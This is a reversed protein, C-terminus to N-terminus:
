FKSNEVLAKLKLGLENLDRASQKVQKMSSANESGAQNITKIAVGIQDMGILQQKSSAVIQTAVNSAERTSETLVQIAEGAKVSQKVGAEVAKNGQEAAMVAASTTKQVDFLITRVQATAKKSQEALSRIEQAVVAFGKGQEGAKAAEIAANVALLNSQNAVDNVSAIIGGISQSQESLRIITQAIVEMQQKINDMGHVTEDVAKQGDQSIQAVHYANESVETAKQSSLQAAQRVEEVTTSTETISAATQVAGSAVQTTAALIESSAAALVNVTDKVEKLIGTLENTRNKVIAELDSIDTTSGKLNGLMRSFAKGLRGIEDKRDAFPITTNLDSKGAIKGAVESLTLLPVAITKNMLYVLLVVFVLGIGGILLFYNMFAQAVDSDTVIQDHMLRQSDVLLVNVLRNMEAFRDEQLGTGLKVAAEPNGETIMTIEVERTKRYEKSLSDIGSIMKFILPDTAITRLTDIMKSSNVDSERIIKIIRDQEPKEKTVCLELIIARQQSILYRLHSLELTTRVHVTNMEKESNIGRQIEVDALRIVVALLLWVLGFGVLLKSRTSLNNFFRM